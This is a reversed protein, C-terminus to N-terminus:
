RVPDSRQSQFRILISQVSNQGTKEGEDVSVVRDAQQRLHDHMEIVIVLKVEENSADAADLCGGLREGLLESGNSRQGFMNVSKQGYECGFVGSSPVLEESGLGVSPLSALVKEEGSFIDASTTVLESLLTMRISTAM